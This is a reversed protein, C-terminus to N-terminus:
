VSQFFKCVATMIVKVQTNDVQYCGFTFSINGFYRYRLTFNAFLKFNQQSFGEVVGNIHQKDDKQPIKLSRSGMYM